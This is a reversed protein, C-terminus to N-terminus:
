LERQHEEDGRKQNQHHGIARLNYLVDRNSQEHASERDDHLETTCMEDPRLRRGDETRHCGDNRHQNIVFEEDLSLTSSICYLHFM